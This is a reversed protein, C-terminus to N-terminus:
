WWILTWVHIVILLYRGMNTTNLIDYQDTVVHRPKCTNFETNDNNSCFLILITAIHKLAHNCLLIFMCLFLDGGYFTNCWLRFPDLFHQFIRILMLACCFVYRRHYSGQKLWVQLCSIVIYFMSLHLESSKQCLLLLKAYIVVRYWVIHVSHRRIESCIRPVFIM